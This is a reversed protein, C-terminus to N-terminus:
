FRHIEKQSIRGKEIRIGDRKLLQIKRKIGGKGSYNGIKGSSLVVKYCPYKNPYPNKACLKGVYRPHIKLKKALIAYTVVKGKPIKRLLKQFEQMKDELVLPGRYGCKRCEFIQGLYPYYNFEKNKCNPCQM